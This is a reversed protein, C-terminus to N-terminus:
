NLISKETDIKEIVKNTITILGLTIVNIFIYLLYDKKM